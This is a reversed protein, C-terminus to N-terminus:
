QIQIDRLIKKNEACIVAVRELKSPYTHTISILEARFDKMLHLERRIATGGLPKVKLLFTPTCQRAEAPAMPIEFSADQMAPSSFEPAEFEAAERWNSGTKQEACALINYLPGYHQNERWAKRVVDYVLRPGQEVGESNSRVFLLSQSQFDVGVFHKYWKWLGAQDILKRQDPLSKAGDRVPMENTPAQTRKFYAEDTEPLETGLKYFALDSYKCLNTGQSPIALSALYNDDWTATALGITLANDYGRASIETAVDHSADYIAKAQIFKRQGMLSIAREAQAQVNKRYFHNVTVAGLVVLVIFGICLKWSVKSM